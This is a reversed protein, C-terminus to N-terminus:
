SRNEPKQDVSPRQHLTSHASLEHPNWNCNHNFDAHDADRLCAGCVRSCTRRQRMAPCCTCVSSKQKRIYNNWRWSFQILPLSANRQRQLIPSRYRKCTHCVFSISTNLSSLSSFSDTLTVSKLRYYTISFHHFELEYSLFLTLVINETHGCCVKHSYGKLVMSWICSWHILIWLLILKRVDTSGFPVAPSKVRSDKHFKGTLIRHFLQLFIKRTSPVSNVSYTGSSM